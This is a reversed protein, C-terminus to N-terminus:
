KGGRGRPWGVRNEDIGQDRIPARVSLERRSQLYEIPLRKAQALVKDSQENRLQNARQLAGQVLKYLNEVEGIGPLRYLELQCVRLDPQKSIDIGIKCQNLPNRDHAIYDNRLKIFRRHMEAAGDWNKYLGVNLKKSKAGRQDFARAYKIIAATWLADALAEDTWFNTESSHFKMLRTLFLSARRLDECSITIDALELAAPFDVEVGVPHDSSTPQDHRENSM